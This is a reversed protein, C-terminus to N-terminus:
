EFVTLCTQPHLHSHNSVENLQREDCSSQLLTLIDLMAFVLSSDCMLSPFGTILRDLLKLAIDRPKTIRHCAAILLSKLESTLHSNLSHDVIRAGMVSKCKQMVQSPSDYLTSSCQFSFFRVVDAVTDLCTALHVNENISGNVFYSPLASPLCLGARLSEIDHVALIFVCQAGTLHKIDGSRSGVCKALAARHSQLTQSHLEIL